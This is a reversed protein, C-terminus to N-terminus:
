LVSKSNDYSRRGMRRIYLRGAVIEETEASKTAKKGEFGGLRRGELLLKRKKLRKQQKEGKLVV